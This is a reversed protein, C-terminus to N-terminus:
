IDKLSVLDIVKVKAIKHSGAVLYGEQGLTLREKHMQRQEDLMVWMRARGHNLIVAEKDEIIEGSDNEFEPWIMYVPMEEDDEAYSFDSRMGQSLKVQYDSQNAIFKYEVVFDCKRNFRKEYSLYQTM